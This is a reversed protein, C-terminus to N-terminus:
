RAARPSSSALAASRATRSGTEEFVSLMHEAMAAVSFRQRVAAQGAQALEQRRRPDLLLAELAGALAAADDAACLVGGGTAEILEPFSAVRPLVVPVGAALSEIVYLGFAEGYRAPVSLVSVSRLFELKASRDPNKVWDVDEALGARELRTVLEQVYGEDSPGCGGGVRLRVGSVQGRRRLAIFADVLIDLGKDSCMRAFYGVALSSPNRMAPPVEAVGTTPAPPEPQGQPYGELSIGNHVVRVRDAPLQMRRTMLEAFYRTPAVFLSVHRAKEALTTWARERQVPPLGDVFADEGQLMCVVPSGLAEGLRHAMGLLLANSLCIVDPRPRTL